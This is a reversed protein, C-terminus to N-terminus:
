LYINIFENQSQLVAMLGIMFVFDAIKLSPKYDWRFRYYVHTIENTFNESTICEYKLANTEDAYQRLIQNIFGSEIIAYEISEIDKTKIFKM